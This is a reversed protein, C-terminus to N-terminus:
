VTVGALTIALIGGTRNCHHGPQSGRSIRFVSFGSGRFSAPVPLSRTVVLNEGTSFQHETGTGALTRFVRSAM